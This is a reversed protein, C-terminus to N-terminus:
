TCIVELQETNTTEFIDMSGGLMEYVEKRREIERRAAVETWGQEEDIDFDETMVAVANEVPKFDDDDVVDRDAGMRLLSTVVEINTSQAAIHLATPRPTHTSQKNVFNLDGGYTESIYTMMERITDIAYLPKRRRLAIIHFVTLGFETSVIPSPLPYKWDTKKRGNRDYGLLFQVAALGAPNMQQLLLGLITTPNNIIVSEDGKSFEFDINAGKELLAVALDFKLLRVAMVFPTEAGDHSQDVNSFFPSLNNFITCTHPSSSDMTACFHLTTLFGSGSPITPDAGAELLSEVMRLSGNQVAIHLPTLLKEGCSTNLLDPSTLLRGSLALEVSRQSRGLVAEFLVTSKVDSGPIRTSILGPSAGRNILLLVTKLLDVQINVGNVVLSTLDDYSSIVVHLLPPGNINNVDAIGFKDLMVEIISAQHQYCAMQIASPNGEGSSTEQPDAGLDLLIRVLELNKFYVARHLPTGPPLESDWFSSWKTASAQQQLWLRRTESDDVGTATLEPRKTMLLVLEPIDEADFVSLWHLPNEGSISPRLDAGNALLIRVTETQGARSASLLATEGDKNVANIDLSLGFYQILFGLAQSFGCTSVFHLLLDGRSNLTFNNIDFRNESAYKVIERQFKEQDEISFPNLRNGGADLFHGAGVGATFCRLRNIAVQYWLKLTAATADDGQSAILHQFDEKAGICGLEISRCLWQALDKSQISIPPPQSFAVIARYALARAIPDGAIASRLLCECAAAKNESTGVGQLYCFFLFLSSEIIETKTLQRVSSTTLRQHFDVM